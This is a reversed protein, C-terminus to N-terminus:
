YYYFYTTTTTTTTTTTSTTITTTTGELISAFVVMCWGQISHNSKEFDSFLPFETWQKPELFFATVVSFVAITAFMAVTLDICDVRKSAIDCITIELTIFLMSVFIMILGYAHTSLGLMDAVDSTAIDSEKSDGSAQSLLYTGFLSVVAALWTKWTLHSGFGLYDELVYELMPIFIVFLSTIFGATTASIYVLALQQLCLGIFGSVGTLFGFFALEFQTISMFNGLFMANQLNKLIESPTTKGGNVDSHVNKM